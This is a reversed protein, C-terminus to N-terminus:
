VYLDSEEEDTDRDSGWRDSMVIKKCRIKNQEGPYRLTVTTVLKGKRGSYATEGMYQIKELSKNAGYIYWATINDKLNRNM